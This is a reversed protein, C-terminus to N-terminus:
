DIVIKRIKNNLGDAVFINGSKDVVLDRPSSFQAVDGDGDVDGNAATGALTSVYGDPSILRISNNAEDAVYINGSGDVAVGSPLAFAASTAPGDVNGFEGTGAVTTVSGDPTVKRIRHNERDAVFLIGDKDIAIGSALNFRAVSATGDMFSPTYNHPRGSFTTVQGNPTIRRIASNQEEMVYLNGAPDITISSPNNLGADTGQGEVWSNFGSGAFTSVMGTPTIKRIFNYVKDTVFVNGNNDIAVDTPVAFEAATKYGDWHGAVGSGAVTTVEASATIKRIRHDARDAVYLNGDDDLTLGQPVKFKANTGVGDAYGSEGGAFTSVIVTAEYEFVSGTVSESETSVIVEGTGAIQLSL